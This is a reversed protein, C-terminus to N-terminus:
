GTAVAAIPLDHSEAWREWEHPSRESFAAEFAERTAASVGLKAVLREAFAPEIAAVAIWGGRAQYLGYLPSGGGLVGQAKTIGHEWPGAFVRAGEDLSIEARRAVGTRDRALLLALSTSVMREAGGLDAVLTRPLAPPSLLGSRALYTLDHGPIDQRPAAHGVLAVHILRPFAASLEAWGLDLRALAAPRTATLLVDATSLLSAVQSRDHKLDIAVITQGRTLLEYYTSSAHRVPDGGPPEVKTVTAGLEALRWAAVVVPLNIGLNVIRVGTLPPQGV